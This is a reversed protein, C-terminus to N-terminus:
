SGLLNLKRIFFGEAYGSRARSEVGRLRMVAEFTAPTFWDRSRQSGYVSMLTAIKRKALSLPLPVYVQPTRLDGDWKPIEYELILHDRFGGWTMENIMRHDQHADHQCHTFVVDPSPGRALQAFGQKLADYAAPFRADPIDGFTLKGRAAPAVLRKMAASTEARRLTNGAFVAWDIRLRKHTRQLQLLTGGCGIEIDDCHAGLCLVRLARSAPAPLPLNIM